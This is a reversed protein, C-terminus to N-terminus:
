VRCWNKSHFILEHAMDMDVGHADLVEKAMNVSAKQQTAFISRVTNYQNVTLHDGLERQLADQIHAIHSVVRYYGELGNAGM